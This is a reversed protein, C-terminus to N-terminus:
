FEYGVKLMMFNGTTRTDPLAKITNFSYSIGLLWADRKEGLRLGVTPSFFFGDWVVGGIDFSWYPVIDRSTQSIFNGRANAFLPLTFLSKEDRRADNNNVYCRGGIGLGVRIYESFRYGGTFTGSVVQMNTNHIDVGSGGAVEVACWFGHEQESYDVYKSRNPREPLRIDNQGFASYSVCMAMIFMLIRNM